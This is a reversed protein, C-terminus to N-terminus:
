KLMCRVKQHFDSNVILLNRLVVHLILNYCFSDVKSSAHLWFAFICAVLICLHRCGPHLSARMKKDNFLIAFGNPFLLTEFSASICAVLICLYVCGLHSSIHMM